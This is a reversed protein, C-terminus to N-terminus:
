KPRFLTLLGHDFRVMGLVLIVAVFFREKEKRKKTSFWWWFGGLWGGSGDDDDCVCGLMLLRLRIFLLVSIIFSFCLLCARALVLCFGSAAVSKHTVFLFFLPKKGKQYKRKKEGGWGRVVRGVAFLGPPPAILFCPFPSVCGEWGVNCGVWWLVRGCLCLCRQFMSSLSDWRSTAPSSLSSPPPHRRRRPSSPLIPPKPPLAALGLLGRVYPEREEAKHRLFSAACHYHLVLLSPQTPTPKTPKRNSPPKPRAQGRRNRSKVKQRKQSHQWKEPLTRRRGIQMRRRHCQHTCLKMHFITQTSIATSTLISHLFHSHM